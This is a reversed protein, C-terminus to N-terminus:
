LWGKEIQLPEIVALVADWSLSSEMVTSANTSVNDSQTQRSLHEIEDAHSKTHIYRSSAEPHVHVETPNACTNCRICRDLAAFILRVYSTKASLGRDWLHLDNEFHNDHLILNHSYWSYLVLAVSLVVLAAAAIRYWQEPLFSDWQNELKEAEKLAVYGGLCWWAAVLCRMYHLVRIALLNEIEIDPGHSYTRYTLNYKDVAHQVTFFFAAFLSACPVVSGLVIGLTFLSITWAYWYGWAFVWPEEAEVYERATRAVSRSHARCLLQPIQLLSNANTLCACAAIYRLAFVGPKDGELKRVVRELFKHPAISEALAQVSEGSLKTFADNNEFVEKVSYLGLCIPMVLSNWILFCANLHLQIVELTSSRHPQVAESIYQICCPLLLSNVACLAISPIQRFIELVSPSELASLASSLPQFHAKTSNVFDHYHSEIEFVIQETEGSIFILCILLFMLVFLLATMSALRVGQERLTVHLNMWKLDSPHPARTCSLSSSAFPAKGFTFLAYDRCNWLMPKDKLFHRQDRWDQFTIFASGTMQRKGQTIEDEESTLRTVKRKWRWAQAEAYIAPIWSFFTTPLIDARLRFAEMRERANRLQLLVDYWHNVVLALKVDFESKCVKTSGDRRRHDTKDLEKAIAERLENEVGRVEEDDLLFPRGTLRDYVPLESMWLTRKMVDLDPPHELVPTDIRRQLAEIFALAVLGRLWADVLLM